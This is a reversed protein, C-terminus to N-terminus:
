RGAAVALRVKAQQRRARACVASQELAAEPTFGHETLEATLDGATGGEAAARVAVAYGDWGEGGKREWPPEGADLERYAEKILDRHRPQASAPILPLRAAANFVLRKVLEGGARLEPDPPPRLASLASIAQELAQLDAAAPELGHSSRVAVRELATLDVGANTLLSRAAVATQKYAPFTVPSVEFLRVKHLTRITEGAQDAWTEDQPREVKFRFSMQSVDGRGVSVLADRGVTTDPVDVEVALGVADENLRLTGASRRGLVGYDRHQWYAVIDDRRITDAFAGPDIRERFGGLNESLRNFVAAHGVLQSPGGEKTVARLESGPVVRIDSDRDSM